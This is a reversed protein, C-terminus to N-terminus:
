RNKYKDQISKSTKFILLLCVACLSAVVGVLAILSNGSLLNDFDLQTINFIVLGVALVILIYIFTKM